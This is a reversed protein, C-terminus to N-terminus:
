AGGQTPSRPTVPTMPPLEGIRDPDRGRAPSPAPERGKKQTPEDRTGMGPLMGPSVGADINERRRRRFERRNDRMQQKYERHMERFVDDDNMGEYGRAKKYNEFMPSAIIDARAQQMPPHEPYEEIYDLMQATREQASSAPKGPLGMFTDQAMGEPEDPADYEVVPPQYDQSSSTAMRASRQQAEEQQRQQRAARIEREEDMAEAYAGSAGHTRRAEREWQEKMQDRSDQLREAHQIVAEDMDAIQRGMEPNYEAVQELSVGAAEAASALVAMNEAAARAYEPSGPEFQGLNSMLSSAEEAFTNAVKAPDVGAEALGALQAATAEPNAQAAASYALAKAEQIQGAVKNALAQAEQEGAPTPKYLAAQEELSLQIERELKRTVLQAAQRQNASSTAFHQEQAQMLARWNAQEQNFDNIREEQRKAYYFQEQQNEVAALEQQKALREEPNFWATDGDIGGEIYGKREAAQAAASSDGRMAKSGYVLSTELARRQRAKRIDHYRAMAAQTQPDLPM